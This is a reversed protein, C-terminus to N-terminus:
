VRSQSGARQGREIADQIAGDLLEREDQEVDVDAKGTGVIGTESEFLSEM